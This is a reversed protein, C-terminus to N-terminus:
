AEAAAERRRAAQRQADLVAVATMNVVGRSTVSPTLIHAPRASGLLMPGVPLGEGLIKLANMTINGADLTPLVLLNASGKLKSNPFVRQRLEENLAADAHMEGEVELDPHDRHLIAVAERMKQASPSDANGFNSHSLLAIKPEIGFARVGEAALTTTEVVEQASPDDSVYTDTLFYSGQPLILLSMASHDHVEPRRGIVDRIHALHWKYAGELGCLM